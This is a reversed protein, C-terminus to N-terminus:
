RSPRPIGSESERETPLDFFRALIGDLQGSSLVGGPDLLGGPSWALLGCDTAWYLSNDAWPSVGEYDNCAALASPLATDRGLYAAYRRLLVAAEERTIPRSPSFRGGGTGQVLGLSWAWAVATAGDSDRPLDSFPGNADYPVGGAGEWLACVFGARTVPAEATAAAPALLLLSLFLAAFRRM